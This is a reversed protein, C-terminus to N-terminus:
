LDVVKPSCLCFFIIKNELSLSLSIINGTHCFLMELPLNPRTIFHLLFSVPSTKAALNTVHALRSSLNDFMMFMNQLHLFQFISLLKDAPPIHLSLHVDHVRELTGSDELQVLSIVVPPVLHAEDRLLLFYCSFSLLDNSFKKYYQPLPVRRCLWRPHTQELLSLKCLIQWVSERPHSSCEYVPSLGGLDWPSNYIRYSRFSHRLYCKLVAKWHWNNSVEGSLIESWKRTLALLIHQDSRVRYHNVCKPLKVLNKKWGSFM